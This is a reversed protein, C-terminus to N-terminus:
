FCAMVSGVVFGWKLPTESDLRHQGLMSHQSPLKIIKLPDPGTNSLFWIAKPNKLPDLGGAGGGGRQIRAHEVILSLYFAM